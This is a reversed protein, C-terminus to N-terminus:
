VPGSDAPRGSEIWAMTGGAVNVVQRGVSALYECAKLSRAGSRCVIYLPDGAPVDALRDALEPLPVLVAGPVRVEDFEDPMRVDLLPAGDALAADLGAVDIEGITGGVTGDGSAM